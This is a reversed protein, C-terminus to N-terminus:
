GVLAFAPHYDVAGRAITPAFPSAMFLEPPGGAFRLGSRSEFGFRSYYSPEGFVVCGAAGRARLRSLAAEILAAGVGRRQREPLVAVPGLGFWDLSAGDITVPSIAIHGLIGADEAVLSLTLAGADRLADVLDGERGNSFPHGEFAAAIVGRVAARDAATEDRILM